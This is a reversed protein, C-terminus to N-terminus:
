GVAFVHAQVERPMLLAALYNCRDRKAVMEM